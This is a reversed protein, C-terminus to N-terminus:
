RLIAEFSVAIQDNLSARVPCYHNLALDVARDLQAQRLAGAGVEFRLHIRTFARPHSDRQEAEVAVQLSHLTARQKAIIAVVEVSACAALALLLSDSPRAGQGGPAALALANHTSDLGVFSEGGTWTLLASTM